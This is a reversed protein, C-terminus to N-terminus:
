KSEEQENQAEVDHDRLYQKAQQVEAPVEPAASEAEGLEAQPEGGQDARVADSAGRKQQDPGAASRAQEARDGDHGDHATTM